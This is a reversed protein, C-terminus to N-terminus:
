PCPPRSWSRRSAREHEAAAVAVGAGGGDVAARQLQAGAGGALVARDVGGAAHGVVSEQNVVETAGLGGGIGDAAAARQRHDPGASVSLALLM